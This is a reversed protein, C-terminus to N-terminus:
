LSKNSRRKRVRRFFEVNPEAATLVWYHHRDFHIHSIEGHSPDDEWSLIAVSGRDRGLVRYHDVTRHGKFNSFIRSPTYRVTLKGFLRAFRQRKAASLGSPFVWRELTRRADSKWTGLLRRDSTHQSRM